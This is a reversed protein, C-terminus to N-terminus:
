RPRHETGRGFTISVIRGPERVEQRHWV